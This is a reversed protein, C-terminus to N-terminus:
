IFSKFIAYKELSTNTFFETLTAFVNQVQNESPYTKTYCHYKMYGIIAIHLHYSGINLVFFISERVQWPFPIILVVLTETLVLFCLRVLLFM